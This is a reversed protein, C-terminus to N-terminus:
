EGEEAGSGADGGADLTFEIRRNAANAGDSEVVPQSSGYGTATIRAPAVGREALAASVANARASSVQQNIADTGTADTHGGVAVSMGTCVTLRQSLGDVIALSEEALAASGTEFVISKGAMFADVEGQCDAVQEASAGTVAEADEIGTSLEAAVEGDALQASYGTEAAIASTAWRVERLRGNALLQAEIRAREAPDTVGSIVAIRALPDRQMTLTAGDAGSAALTAQAEGELSGIYEAGDAAHSGWALLSAAGAGILGKTLGHM